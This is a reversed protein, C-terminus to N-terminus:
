LDILVSVENDGVYILGSSITTLTDKAGANIISVDGNGLKMILPTHYPLIVITEKEAPVFLAECDGYYIVGKEGIVSLTFNRKNEAM